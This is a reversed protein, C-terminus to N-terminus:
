AGGQINRKVKSDQLLAHPNLTDLPAKHPHIFLYAQEGVILLQLNWLQGAYHPGCLQEWYCNLIYM